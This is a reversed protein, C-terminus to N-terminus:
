ELPSYVNRIWCSLHCDRGMTSPRNGQCVIQWTQLPVSNSVGDGSQLTIIIVGIQQLYVEKIMSLKEKMDGVVIDLMYETHPVLSCLGTGQVTSGVSDFPRVGAGNNNGHKIGQPEAISQSNKTDIISDVPRQKVPWCAVYSSVDDASSVANGVGGDKQLPRVGKGDNHPSSLIVGERSDLLKVEEKAFAIDAQYSVTWHPDKVESM